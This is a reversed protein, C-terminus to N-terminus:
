IWRIIREWFNLKGEIRVHPAKTRIQAMLEDFNKLLDTFVIQQKRDISIIRIVKISGLMEAQNFQRLEDLQDWGLSIHKGGYNWAEIQQDSTAVHEAVQRTRWVTLWIVASVFIFISLGAKIENLFLLRGVVAVMAIGAFWPQVWWYHYNRRNEFTFNEM